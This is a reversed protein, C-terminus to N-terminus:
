NMKGLLYANEAEGPANTSDVKNAKDEGTSDVVTKTIEKKDM